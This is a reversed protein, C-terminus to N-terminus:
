PMRQLCARLRDSEGRRVLDIPQAMDLAPVPSNLWGISNEGAAFYVAWAIDEHGGCESILRESFDCALFAQDRCATAFQMWHTDM